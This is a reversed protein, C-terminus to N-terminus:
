RSCDPFGNIPIHQAADISEGGERLGPLAPVPVGGNRSSSRGGMATAPTRRSAAAPLLLAGRTPEPRGARSSGRASRALFVPRRPAPRAGGPVARRHHLSLDIRLQRVGDQPLQTGVEVLLPSSRLAVEVAVAREAEGAHQGVGRAGGRQDGMGQDQFDRVGNEERVAEAVLDATGGRDLDPRPLGALHQVAVVGDVRHAQGAHFELQARHPRKRVEGRLVAGGTQDQSAVLQLEFVGLVHAFLADAVCHHRFSRQEEVHAAGHVASAGLRELAGRAPSM